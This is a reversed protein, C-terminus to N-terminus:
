WSEPIDSSLREGANNEAPAPPAIPNRAPKAM